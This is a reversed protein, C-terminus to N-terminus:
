GLSNNKNQTYSSTTAAGFYSLILSCFHSNAYM